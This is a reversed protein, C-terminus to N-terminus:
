NVMFTHNQKQARMGNWQGICREKHWHWVTKIGIAKYYTKFNPLPFGGVKDKKELIIQSKLTGQKKM